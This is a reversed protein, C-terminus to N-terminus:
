QQQSQPRFQPNRRYYEEWVDYRFVVLYWQDDEYSNKMFQENLQFVQKDESNIVAFYIEIMDEYTYQDMPYYVKDKSYSLLEEDSLEDTGTLGEASRYPLANFREMFGVMIEARRKEMQEAHKQQRLEDAAMDDYKTSTCAHPANWNYHGRLMEDSKLFYDYCIDDGGLDDWTVDVHYWEGDIQVINWAHSVGYRYDLAAAIEDTGDSDGRVKECPVGALDLLCKYADAYTGCTAKYKMLPYYIGSEAPRIEGNYIGAMWNHDYEVNLVLYDHLAKAIEYDSMDATVTASVIEAAKERVEKMEQKYEEYEEKTGYYHFGVGTSEESGCELPGWLASFVFYNDSRSELIEEVLALLDAQSIHYPTTDLMGEEMNTLRKIIAKRAGALDPEATKQGTGSGSSPTSPKPTPTESEIVEPEPTAEGPQIALLRAIVTAVEARTMTNEGNFNGAQDGKILGTGYVALVADIYLAPIDMYDAVEGPQATKETVGLKKAAACLIVAMDYRTIENEVNNVDAKSGTLLGADKAARVYPDYWDGGDAKVDPFVLRGLLTLFQAVSVKLEPSFKGGGTGKMLGAEAATEIYDYGWYTTPVDSFTGEAAAAPLLGLTLVATLLAALIRKKM